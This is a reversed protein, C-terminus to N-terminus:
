CIINFLQVCTKIREFALFCQSQKNCARPKQMIKSLKNNGLIVPLGALCGTKLSAAVTNRKQCAECIAFVLTIAVPSLLWPKSHRAPGHNSQTPMLSGMTFPHHPNTTRGKWSEKIFSLTFSNQVNFSCTSGGVRVGSKEDEMDGHEKSISYTPRLMFLNWTYHMKSM